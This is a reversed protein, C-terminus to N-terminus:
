EAYICVFVCSTVANFFLAANEVWEHLTRNMMICVLVCSTVANFFLVANDAREHLTRMLMIRVLVCQSLMLSNSLMTLGNM